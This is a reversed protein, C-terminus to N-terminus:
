FLLHPVFLSLVSYCLSVISCCCYYVSLYLVAVVFSSVAKSCDASIVALVKCLDSLLFLLTINSGNSSVQACTILYIGIQVEFICGIVVGTIFFCSGHM